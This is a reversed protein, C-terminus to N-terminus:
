EQKQTLIEAETLIIGRNTIIDKLRRNEERLRQMKKENEEEVTVVVGDIIRM